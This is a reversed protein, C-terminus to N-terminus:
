HEMTQSLLQMLEEEERLLNLDRSSKDLPPMGFFLLLHQALKDLQQSSEM